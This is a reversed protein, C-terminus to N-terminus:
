VCEMKFNGRLRLAEEMKQIREAQQMLLEQVRMAEDRQMVVIDGNVLPTETAHAVRGVAYVSAILLVTLLLIRKM